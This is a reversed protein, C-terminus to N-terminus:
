NEILVPNYNEKNIFMKWNFFIFWDVYKIKLLLTDFIREETDNLFLKVDM